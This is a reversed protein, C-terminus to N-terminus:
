RRSRDAPESGEATFKVANNILNLAVQRLRTRDGWVWPGSPPLSADWALGKDSALARGTEAITQLAQGLDVFENTLRLQGADSRALDLVDSILWGLHQANAHIREVDRRTPEPLLATKEPDEQLLIGSLGVILNLPTRLEHSVTSLFRSKIQNAEEALRRGETAERYLQATNLAAALQQVIAGYLDLQDTDFVVFGLQGRPNVLPLLALSFPRDTPLMGAPPFARCPFRVPAQGPPTITRLEGWAVPDTGEPEYSAVAAYHVGMEPLHRALVDYVQTEDLATLLRATLLGVRDFTWRQDVVYRRHQRWTTAALVSHVEELLSRALNRRGAEPWRDTLAPLEDSVVSFAAQWITADDWGHSAQRLIADVADPFAAPENREVSAIFAATLRRRLARIEDPESGTAGGSTQAIAGPMEQAESIGVQGSTDVVRVPPTGSRGCGCSERPVLHTAVKVPEVPPPEGQIQRLLQEVARYGMEFLPVAVSTLAPEQVASEPRDDFGIIAVDQPVRIGAERLAEMAGLASEDNSALIATFPAGTDMIRRMADYGGATIHRGYAVLHEDPPLGFEQLASRYAQFRAGTDGAMDEPSGAIFAIRRHGHGVLHRMADRIGAANDAVITPGAEGAAVFM